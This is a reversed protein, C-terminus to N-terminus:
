RGDRGKGGEGLAGKTKLVVERVGKTGEAESVEECIFDRVRVGWVRVM